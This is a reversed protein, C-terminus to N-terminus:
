NFKVNEFRYSCRVARHLPMQGYHDVINTDANLILLAKAIEPEDLVVAYHLPTQPMIYHM